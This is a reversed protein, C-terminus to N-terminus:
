PPLFRVMGWLLGPVRERVDPAEVGSPAQHIQPSISIGTSPPPPPDWQDQRKHHTQCIGHAAVLGNTHSRNSLSWAECRRARRKHLQLMTHITEHVSPRSHRWVPLKSARAEDHQVVVQLYHIGARRGVQLYGGIEGQCSAFGEGGQGGAGRGGHGWGVRGSGM